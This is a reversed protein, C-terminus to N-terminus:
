SQQTQGLVIELYQRRHEMVVVLPLGVAVHGDKATMTITVVSGKKAAIRSKGKSNSYKIDNTTKGDKEIRYTISAGKVTEGMTITLILGTRRWLIIILLFIGAAILLLIWWPSGKTVSVDDSGPTDGGGGSGGGGGGGGSGGGGGPDDGPDGGGYGSTTKVEITHNAMVNFFTYQGLDIEAKTLPHLGDIRVESITFGAIASFIFTRDNGKSVIVVGSPDIMSGPDSTATIYYDKVTVPPTLAIVEQYVINSTSANYNTSGVYFATIEHIGAPLTSISISATGLADLTATGFPVGDRYFIVDGDPTGTGPPFTTVTVEFTVLEGVFSPNLNSTLTTDTEAELVHHQIADSSENYVSDGGYAAVVFYVGAPLGSVTLTAVGSANLVATGVDTGDIFFTVSGTPTGPGPPVATVTAELTVTEDYYSPNPDTYVVTSSNYREVTFSIEFSVSAIPNTNTAAVGVTVTASYTGPSLGDNPKVTFKDDGGVAISGMSASGLTFSSADAGSLTITLDGTGGAFSGLNTVLVELPTQSPYGPSADPFSYPNFMDLPTGTADDSLAIAHNVTVVVAVLDSHDVKIQFDYGGFTGTSNSPATAVAGTDHIYILILETGVSLPPLTTGEIFVTAIGNRINATTGTMTCYILSPDLTGVFRLVTGANTGIDLNGNIVSGASFTINNAGNALMVDGNITAANMLTFGMTGTLYIGSSASEILSYNNVTCNVYNTSIGRGDSTITGYNNVTGNIYVGTDAGIILSYNNIVNGSAGSGCAIGAYRCSITGHNDVTVTCANGIFIGDGNVTSIMGHNVISTGSSSNNISIVRSPNASVITRMIGTAENIITCNSGAMIGGSSGEMMGYNILTNGSNLWAIGSTENFFTIRGSEYNTLTGSSGLFNIATGNVNGFNEIVGYNNITSSAGVNIINYPSTIVGTCYANANNNLTVAIAATANVATSTNSTGKILGYNSITSNATVSVSNTTFEISAVNKLSGGALTVRSALKGMDDGRSNSYITLSNGTSVTIGATASISLSCGKEIIIVVDGTVTIGTSRSLDTGVYWYGATLNGTSPVPEAFVYNLTDSNEDLYSVEVPVADSNPDSIPFLVVLMLALPIAFLVWKKQM